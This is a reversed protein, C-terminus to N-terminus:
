RVGCLHLLTQSDLHLAPDSCRVCAKRAWKRVYSAVEPIDWLQRPDDDYGHVNIYINRVDLLRLGRWAMAADRADQPTLHGGVGIMLATFDRNIEAHFERESEVTM